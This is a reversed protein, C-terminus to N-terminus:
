AFACHVDVPAPLYLHVTHFNCIYLQQILALNRETFLTSTSIFFSVTKLFLHDSKETAERQM